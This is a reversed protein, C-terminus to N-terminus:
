NSALRYREHLIGVRKVYARTEAYPPIGGHRRVAGPGANYAATALRVDGDHRDIMRALYDVGGRINERVDLPNSVGLERATGPMLQMLGQAGKPSVARPNFASEAHIVARVLAPDVQYDRALTDIEDQYHSVFLPTKQWDVNSDPDCAYCDFRIVDYAAKDPRAESFTVVGNDDTYKYVTEQRTSARATMRASSDDTYEVRGDPHEIRRVSDASVSPVALTVPLLCVAASILLHRGPRM